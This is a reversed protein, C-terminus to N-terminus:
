AGEYCFGNIVDVSIVAVNDPRDNIIDALPKPQLSEKWEVVYNLFARSQEILQEGNM